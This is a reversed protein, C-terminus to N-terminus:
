KTPTSAAIPSNPHLRGIEDTLAWMRDELAVMREKMSLKYLGRELATDEAAQQNDDLFRTSTTCGAATVV